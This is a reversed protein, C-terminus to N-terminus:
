ALPCLCQSPPGHLMDSTTWRLETRQWASCDPGTGTCGAGRTCGALLALHVRHLAALRAANNRADVAHGQGVQRGGVGACIHALTSLCPLAPQLVITRTTQQQKLNRVAAWGQEGGWRSDRQRRTRLEVHQTHAVREVDRGPVIRALLLAAALLVGSPGSSPVYEENCSAQQCGGRNTVIGQEAPGQPRNGQVSGYM